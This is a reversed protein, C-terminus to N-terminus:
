KQKLKLENHESQKGLSSYRVKWLVCGAEGPSGQEERGCVPVPSREGQPSPVVELLQQLLLKTYTV